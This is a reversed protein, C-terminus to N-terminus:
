ERINWKDQHVKLLMIVKHTILSKVLGNIAGSVVRTKKQSVKIKIKTIQNILGTKNSHSPGGIQDVVKHWHVGITAINWYDISITPNAKVSLQM